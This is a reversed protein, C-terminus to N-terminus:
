RAANVQTSAKDPDPFLASQKWSPREYVRLMFKKINPYREFLDDVRIFPFMDLRPALIIDALSFDDGLLWQRNDSLQNEMWRMREFLIEIYESLREENVPEILIRRAFKAYVPNRTNATIKETLSEETIKTSQLRTKGYTQYIAERFPKAWEM